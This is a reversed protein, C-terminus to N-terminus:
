VEEETKMAEEDADEADEAGEEILGEEGATDNEEPAESEAADKAKMDRTIRKLRSVIASKKIGMRAAVAELDLKGQSTGSGKMVQVCEWLFRVDTENKRITRDKLPVGKTKSEAVSKRASMKKKPAM